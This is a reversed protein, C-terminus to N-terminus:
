RRQDLGAVRVDLIQRLDVVGGHERADPVPMQRRRERVEHLVAVGALPGLLIQGDGDELVVHQPRREQQAEATAQPRQDVLRGPAFQQEAVRDDLGGVERQPSRPEGATDLPVEARLPVRGEGALGQVGDLHACVVPGGHQAQILVLARSVAVADIEGQRVAAVHKEGRNPPSSGM